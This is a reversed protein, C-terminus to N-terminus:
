KVLSTMYDEIADPTSSIGMFDGMSLNPYSIALYYKAHLIKAKNDEILVMYPLFASHKQGKIEPIYSAEGDETPMAIGFLTSNQLKLKFVVNNGANLELTNSLNDGEAIEIMDEYYPMGMMFHYGAIDDDELADSSAEMKGFESELDTTINKAIQEKYDDQMFAHLFYEPNTFILKNDNESILVKEVGAFGRNEKSAEDKLADNSFVIVHYKADGMADYEGVVDYGKAELSSKVADASKYNAYLYSSVDKAMAVTVIMSMAMFGILLKGV